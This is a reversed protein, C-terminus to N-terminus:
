VNLVRPPSAVKWGVLDAFTQLGCSRALARNECRRRNHPMEGRRQRTRRAVAEPYPVSTPYHSPEVLFAIPTARGNEGALDGDVFPVGKDAVRSIGVGDEVAENVVGV